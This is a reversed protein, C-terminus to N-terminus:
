SPKRVFKLLQRQERYQQLANRRALRRIAAREPRGHGEGLVFVLKQGQSRQDFQSMAQSAARRVVNLPMGELHVVYSGGSQGRCRGDAPDQLEGPELSDQSSDSEDTSMDRPIIRTFAAAIGTLDDERRAPDSLWDTDAGHGSLRMLERLVENAGACSPLGAIFRMLRSHHMTKGEPPLPDAPQCRMGAAIHCLMEQALEPQARQVAQLVRELTELYIPQDSSASDFLREAWRIRRWVPACATRWAQSLEPPLEPLRILIRANAEHMCHLDTASQDPQYRSLAPIAHPALVRLLECFHADSTSRRGFVQILGLSQELAMTLEMGDIQEEIFSVLRPVSFHRAEDRFTRGDRLHWLKEIRSAVASRPLDGIHLRPLPCLAGPQPQALLGALVPHM